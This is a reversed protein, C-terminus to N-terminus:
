FNPSRDPPPPSPRGSGNGEAPTAKLVGDRVLRERLKDLVGLAQVLGQIPMAVTLEPVARLERGAGVAANELRQFELRAVGNLITVEKLVDCFYTPM